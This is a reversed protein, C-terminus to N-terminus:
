EPQFFEILRRELIVCNDINTYYANSLAIEGIGNAFYRPLTYEQSCSNIATGNARSFIQNRNFCEYSGLPVTKNVVIENMKIETNITGNFEFSSQSFPTFDENYTWNIKGSQNVFYGSSDRLFLSPEGSSNLDQVGYFHKFLKGNILTDAMLTVTDRRSGFFETEQGASDIEYWQYVWFTGEKDPYEFEPTSDMPGECIIEEKKCAV